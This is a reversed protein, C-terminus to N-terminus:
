EIELYTRTQGFSRLTTITSDTKHGVSIRSVIAFTRKRCKSTEDINKTGVCKTAKDVRATSVATTMSM